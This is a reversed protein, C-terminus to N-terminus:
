LPTPPSHKWPPRKHIQKVQQANSEGTSCQKRRFLFLLSIHRRVATYIYCAQLSCKEVHFMTMILAQKRQIKIKIYCAQLYRLGALVNSQPVLDYNLSTEETDQDQYLWCQSITGWLGTYSKERQFLTKILNLSAEETDQDQYLLGPSVM